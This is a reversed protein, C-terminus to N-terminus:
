AGDALRNRLMAYRPDARLSALDPDRDLMDADRFGLGVGADLARFAADRRGARAHACATNFAVIPERSGAQVLAEGVRASEDFRGGLFLAHQFAMRATEADEARSALLRELVQDLLGAGALHDLYTRAPVYRGDLWADVTANVREAPDTEVVFARLHGSPEIGSPYDAVLRAAGVPDGTTLAAWAAVETVLARVRPDKSRELVGDALALAKGPDGGELAAAAAQVDGAADREKDRGLARYNDVVFFLAFVAGFLLDETVAWVAAGAAVAISLWRAAAEGRGRTAADLLERAVQGGDLPLVPLLNVVAYGLNVLVLLRLVDDWPDPAPWSGDLLLAPLGLLLVGTFPGALSVAIRSWRTPLHGSPITVGGMVHLVIRSGVGWHRFAAAHGLEHVLVSVFVVVVWIAVLLPDGAPLGFLVAWFLFMWEVRVSVGAVRFVPGGGEHPSLLMSM